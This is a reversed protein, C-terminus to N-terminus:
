RAAGATHTVGGILARWLAARMTDGSYHRRIYDRGLAGAHRALSPQMLLTVVAEALADADDAVHVCGEVGPLGQVGVSTTVVPVGKAMAEVVKLKVGAGFRMPAIVVSAAGYHAALESASVNSKVLVDPAALALVRDTPLSGVLHLRTDPLRCQIRPLIEHVLWEAADENPPHGFCAVFLLNSNGDAKGPWELDNQDFFYLPVEFAKEIGVYDSVIGAEEASPYIAGDVSRWLALETQLMEEAAVRDDAIGTLASQALMRRFHLDHGFLLVRADTHARLPAIYRGAFNPRSLIAFDFEEGSDHLYDEFSREAILVEIGADELFHRFEPSYLQDDPWFKVLMGMRVLQLMTQLIARSGADRDPQPLTHDMVLVVQKHRAHDRARQVHHGNRYHRRVLVHRWREHFVFRNRVQAAKGSRDPDTGHTGGEDHIVVSRPCYYVKAGRQRLRFALDTDEYYAPAYRADFGGEALFVSTRMLLAAASCYDVERVYNYRAADPDDDRGYNWASGDSWVIGGAEQLRGDPFLLKSGVMGCDPLREFVALAEDLWGATVRADNNLLFVYEGRATAAAANCSHVFGLNAPNERYVVGPVKSLLGIEPDGSADEIILIEHSAQPLHQQISRLCRATLALNGFAPILISVQPTACAAFRLEAIASEADPRSKSQLAGPSPSLTDTLDNRRPGGGQRELPKPDLSQADTSTMDSMAM